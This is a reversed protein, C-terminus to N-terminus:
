AAAEGVAGLAVAHLASHYVAVVDEFYVAADGLREPVPFAVSGIAAQAQVGPQCWEQATTM